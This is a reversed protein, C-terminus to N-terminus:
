MHMYACAPVGVKLLMQSILNRATPDPVRALKKDKVADTWEALTWLSDEELPDDSLNDDQGASFLPRVEANCLQYLICGLSWIDFSPHAMLLDPFDTVEYVDKNAESLICALDGEKAVYVAEPPVYASSSKSGVFDIGVRCAADLDVLKWHSNTRLINLTKIDAHIIGKSHIHDTARVLQSFLHKVITMNSGGAFREQKLAVYLNRDALPMVLCFLEEAQKKSLGSGTHEAEASTEIHEDWDKLSEEIASATFIEDKQSHELASAVDAKPAKRPSRPSRSSRLAKPSRVEAHHLPLAPHTRIIGMVREPSFQKERTM